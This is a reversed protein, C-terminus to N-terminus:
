LFQFLRASRYLQTPTQMFHGSALCPSTTSVGLVSLGRQGTFWNAPLGHRAAEQVRLPRHVTGNELPLILRPLLGDRENDQGAAQLPVCPGM